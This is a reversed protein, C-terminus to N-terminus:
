FLTTLKPGDERRFDRGARSRGQYFSHAFANGSLPHPGDGSESFLGTYKM